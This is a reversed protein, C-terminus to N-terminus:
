SKKYKDYSIGEKNLYYNIKVVKLCYTLLGVVILKCRNM